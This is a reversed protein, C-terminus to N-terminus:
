SIPRACCSGSRRTWQGCPVRRTAGLSARRPIKPARDGGSQRRGDRHPVVLPAAAGLLSTFVLATLLIDTGTEALVVPLAFATLVAGIKAFAAAFGAGKGRIHTPFVEGALLDAQANPGLNTMFSFIMFGGFLLLTRMPEDFPPQLAAMALGVACGLFGVIQLRIRGVKGWTLVAALVGVILLTDVLAAAGIVSGALTAASVLGKGAASLGFEEVLLPLAIGTM